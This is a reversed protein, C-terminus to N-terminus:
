TTFCYITQKNISKKIQDLIMQKKFIEAFIEVIVKKEEQTPNKPLIEGIKM